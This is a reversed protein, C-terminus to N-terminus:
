SVRASVTKIAGKKKLNQQNRISSLLRARTPRRLCFTEGNDKLRGSRWHSIIKQDQLARDRLPLVWAALSNTDGLLRCSNWPQLFCSLIPLIRFLEPLAGEQCHLKCWFQTGESCCIKYCSTTRFQQCFGEQHAEIITWGQGPAQKCLQNAQPLLLQEFHSASISPFLFDNHIVSMKSSKVVSGKTRPYTLM